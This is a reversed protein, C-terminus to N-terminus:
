PVVSKLRKSLEVLVAPGEVADVVRVMVRPSLGGSLVLIPTCLSRLSFSVASSAAKGESVVASMSVSRVVRSAGPLVLSGSANFCTMSRTRCSM